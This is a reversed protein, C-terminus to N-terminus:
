TMTYVTKGDNTRKAMLEGQERLNQVFDHVSPDLPLNLRGAIRKLDNMEFHTQGSKRMAELFLRRQKSKGGAGGRTKDINGGEDTHVQKVSEIMLEVVDEADEKLVYPRLCAKARAQSLRILAELQRTTIPVNDRRSQNDDPHRLRMFYDQLVNAAADTMQPKCYERAYAIYDKVQQLPLPQKQFDNVWPLRCQLPIRGQGYQDMEGALRRGESGDGHGTGQQYDGGRLRGMISGSIMRDRDADAEDRLIFVLDFRSLLPGAMNLNEAVSKGMNYHGKKPNAAAIVSCRSPLSAVVGAKAISVQQQEMAELLGDQHSKPMKDLEDLCCVGRDALVLAGAEIGMDGGPEKTLSVTLGTSSATNGGVYVSRSAVQNASLLMQSKGMGPDGVVLMHSNSRITMGSQAEMGSVEPPTGGLLCLIIGAKVLDNGIINPCLSRVLLDFPFAMRTPMSYMRHDAHALNAIQQLQQDTYHMNTSSSSTRSRKNQGGSGAADNNSEMGHKGSCVGQGDGSGRTGDESTLNVISHGVVYLKYTSTEMARKGARGSALASNVAKVIGCVVISDGAHCMDVLDHSVEVEIHRPARGADRNDDGGGDEMDLEERVEQIKLEQVDCFNAVKRNLIFKQSRCKMDDCRTPSCYKGEMFKTIQNLGCKSCTFGADLVRLRKPRAKTVTGRLSILRGVTSTRIHAMLVHSSPALNYFRPKYIATDFTTLHPHQQNNNNQQQLLPNSSSVYSQHRRWLTLINLGIACAITALARDPKIHLYTGFSSRSHTNNERNNNSLSLNGDEYSCFEELFLSHNFTVIQKGGLIRPVFMYKTENNNTNASSGASSSKAKVKQFMFALSDWTRLGRFSNNEDDDNENADDTPHQNEKERNAAATSREMGDIVWRMFSYLRCIFIYDEDELSMTVVTTPAIGSSSRSGGGGRGGGRGGRGGRGRGGGASPPGFNDGGSSGGITLAHDPAHREWLRALDGKQADNLAAVPAM